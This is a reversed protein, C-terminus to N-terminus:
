RVDSALGMRQFMKPAGASAWFGVACYRIFRGLEYFPSARGWVPIDKFISGEGPFVLRLALYIVVLGAFGVLCRIFMVHIGPKKGNIDASASFPFRQRMLAYGICFGLLLAPMSRDHPYLGNMLLALIAACINRFRADLSTFFSDLRPGPIFWIFLIIGALIWGALIDTPFHVGLYLRTFAILLVFFVAAAWIV